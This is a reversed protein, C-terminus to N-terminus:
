GLERCGDGAGSAKSHNATIMELRGIAGAPGIEDHGKRRRGLLQGVNGSPASDNLEKVTIGVAFHHVYDMSCACERPPLNSGRRLGKRGLFAAAIVDNGLSDLGTAVYAAGFM